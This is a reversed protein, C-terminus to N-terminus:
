VKLLQAQRYSCAELIHNKEITASEAMDAITRAVRIARQFARASMGLKEALTHLTSLAEPSPCAYEEIDKGSLAANAKHQRQLQRQRTAQVRERIISSSEETITAKTSLANLPTPQLRLHMDIRDLLPGSIKNRYRQIQEVSCRCQKGLDGYYGCPCPNMAAVLQFDAPFIAQRAARSICIHGNELPERLAELVSRQFEPLEDLFLVGNHALSVEGPRPPNGGGVLAVASASHHPARFPRQMWQSLDLQSSITSRIALQALAEERSMEPLITPLRQALMSKGCGPPGEYLLNHGGAAAIELARKAQHQGKIDAMDTNNESIGRDPQESGAALKQANALHACVELLHSAILHRDGVALNAEHGNAAPIIPLRGMNTCSVTSNLVGRVPRIEGTLALEGIFEHKDLADAPIQESAALIGLAIALDFRGGDKPLDAPALNVTIRKAPFEYRSNIIASRVRDKSERVATEPLGVLNFAPLGNSLHVEVTVAPASLADLARTRIIAISM